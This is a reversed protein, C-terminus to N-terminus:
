QSLWGGRSWIMFVEYGGDAVFSMAVSRDRASARRSATVPSQVPISDVETEAPRPKAPAREHPTCALSAFLLVPAFRM